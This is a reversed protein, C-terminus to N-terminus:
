AACLFDAGESRGTSRLRGRIIERAGESGVAAVLFIGAHEALDEPPIIPVGRMTRGIKRPDIDVVCRITIGERVLHKSLRRGTMGAGWLVIEPSRQRLLQALYHAKARLFNELAYRSDTFTLRGEHTRWFLLTRPLKEFRRGSLHYRLWLDYDEPWGHDQYGGLERLESLRLTVSPHAVPSEVFIDRAIEEHSSLSNLWSEYRRFGAGVATQPFSRVLCSCVGVDPRALMLEAQLRFREPHCIDDGDMRAVLRGRCEEIGRNLAAVLGVHPSEILRLRRDGGAARKAAAATEDTSGDDVAVIEFDRFTQRLLSGIASDVTSATNYLPMLVSILPKPM